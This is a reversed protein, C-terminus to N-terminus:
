WRTTQTQTPPLRLLLTHVRPPTALSRGVACAWAGAAREAIAEIPDAQLLYRNARDGFGRRAVFFIQLARAFTGILPLTAM